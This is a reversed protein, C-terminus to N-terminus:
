LPVVIGKVRAEIALETRNSFGTKDLMHQIHSKVTNVSIKLRQAIETNEAGTTLERLVAMEAASLEASDTLGIKEVPASQPYVNEGDMTRRMIELLPERSAEKYWFSEVGLQKAREIFRAEPMSTVAILKIDPYNNKVYECADLGSIGDAMVIDMIILDVPYKALYIDVMGASDISKVLEYRSSSRVYNEFLQRSIKQDDVILVRTKEM